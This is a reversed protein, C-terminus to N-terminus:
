LIYFMCYCQTKFSAIAKDLLIVKAHTFAHMTNATGLNRSLIYLMDEASARTSNM